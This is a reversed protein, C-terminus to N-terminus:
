LASVGLIMPGNETVAVSYEFHASKKGGKTRVTWGDKEVVVDSKGANVMPEIALVMGCKIPYTPKEAFFNPVQPEEHLNKGIGHGVYDRVVSFGNQTVYDEVAKSIDSVKAGEKAQKIGLNLSERTVSILKKDEETISGVACTRAADGYYGKYLVGFDLSVIDGEELTRESPIGHVVEDNVSVCLSAPYGHYNKFAPIGGEKLTMEESIKDLEKTKVGPKITEELADLVKLVIKNADNLIEIEKRSKLYIM